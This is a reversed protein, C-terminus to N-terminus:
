WNKELLRRRHENLPAYGVSTFEKQYYVMPVQSLPPSPKNWDIPKTKDFNLIKRKSEIKFFHIVLIIGVISMVISSLLLKIIM